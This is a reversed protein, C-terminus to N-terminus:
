ASSHRREAVVGRGHRLAVRAHDVRVQDQEQGPGSAIPEADADVVGGAVAPRGARACHGIHCKKSRRMLGRAGPSDAADTILTIQQLLRTVDGTQCHRV